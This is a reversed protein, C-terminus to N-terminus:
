QFRSRTLHLRGAIVAVLKKCIKRNRTLLYERPPVHGLSEHTTRRQIRAVVKCHERVEYLSQFVFMDLVAERYSRNFSEIFGNQMPRGPKIFELM